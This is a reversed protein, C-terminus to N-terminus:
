LKSPPAPGGGLVERCEGMKTFLRDTCNKKKKKKKRHKRKYGANGAFSDQLSAVSAHSELRCISRQRYDALKRLKRLRYTGYGVFSAFRANFAQM